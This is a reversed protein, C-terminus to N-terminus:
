AMIARSTGGDATCLAPIDLATEAVAALRERDADTRTPMGVFPFVGLPPGILDRLAAINTCAALDPTPQLTNLIYGRLTLGAHRIWDVTLQAHNLAGLRNGVVVIIPLGCARALDAFTFRGVLPVLLGGAGEVFAVDTDATAREVAGTLAAADLPVGEAAAAVSPALPARFRFPCITDLSEGDRGAAWRLQVADAPILEGDRGPECGTEVPKVIGVRFGRRYAAAAIATTVTTKGVGTDTGTILFPRAVRTV